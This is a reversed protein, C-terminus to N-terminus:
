GNDGEAEGAASAIVVRRGDPLPHIRAQYSVSAGDSRRLQRRVVFRRGSRILDWRLPTERLDEPHILEALNKGLLSERTFGLEEVGRRNIDRICLDADVVVILDAIQDMVSRFNAEVARLREEAQNAQLAVAAQHIFAEVFQPQSLRQGNRLLILVGGFLQEQSVCGMSYIESVSALREAARAIRRPVAEFLVEYMGGSVKHLRGTLLHARAEDSIKRYRGFPIEGILRLVRSRLDVPGALARLGMADRAPDFVSIAIWSNGVISHVREAIFAFIDQEPDRRLFEMATQNLFGLDAIWQEGSSDGEANAPQRKSTM